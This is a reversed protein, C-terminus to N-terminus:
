SRSLGAAEDELTGVIGHLERRLKQEPLDLLRDLLRPGIRIALEEGKKEISDRSTFGSPILFSVSVELAKSVRVLNEAGPAARGSIWSNVTTPGVGVARALDVRKMKKRALASKIRRSVERRLAIVDPSDAGKSKPM